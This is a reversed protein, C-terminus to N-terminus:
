ISTKSSVGVDRERPETLITVRFSSSRRIGQGGEGHLQRSPKKEKQVKRLDEEPVSTPKQDKRQIREWRGSSGTNGRFVV